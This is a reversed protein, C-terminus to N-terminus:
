GNQLTVLTTRDDLLPPILDVIEQNSTAQVAILVLDSPGIEKTSSYCNVKSITFNEVEGRVTLGDRRVEALGGRMLFHVDCGAHALKAGYYIGIAGSGVIAIKKM